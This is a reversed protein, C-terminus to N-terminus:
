VRRIKIERKQSQLRILAEKLQEDTIPLKIRGTQALQIFQLELQEAFEPKVMKINTLRQRAEPTFIKRLIAQKQAELQQEMQIRRQEEILARQLEAMKKRRILELEESDLEESMKAIM